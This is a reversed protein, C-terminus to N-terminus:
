KKQHPTGIWKAELAEVRKELGRIDRGNSLPDPVHRIIIVMLILGTLIVFFRAIREVDPSSKM